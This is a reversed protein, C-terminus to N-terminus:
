HTIKEYKYGGPDFVKRIPRLFLKSLLRRMMIKFFFKFRNQKKIIHLSTVIHNNDHNHNYLKSIVNTNINTYKFHHIDICYNKISSNYIYDNISEEFFIDWDGDNINDIIEGQLELEEIFKDCEDFINGFIIASTIIM